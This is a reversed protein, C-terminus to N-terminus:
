EQCQRAHLYGNDAGFPWHQALETYLIISAAFSIESAHSAAATISCVVNNLLPTLFVVFKDTFDDEHGAERMEWKVTNLLKANKYINLKHKSSFARTRDILSGFKKVFKKDPNIEM